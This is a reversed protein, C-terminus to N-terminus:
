LMVDRVPYLRVIEAVQTVAVKLFTQDTEFRFELRAAPEDGSSLHGIVTAHGLRGMSIMFALVGETTTFRAEGELQRQMLSLQEHFIAFDKTQVALPVEGKFPGAVVCVDCKLWNADYHEISGPREYGYVTIRIESGDGKVILATM